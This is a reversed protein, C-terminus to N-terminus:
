SKYWSEWFHGTYADEKNAQRSVLENLCKMFWGLDALRNRYREVLRNLTEYGTPSDL